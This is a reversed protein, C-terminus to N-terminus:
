FAKPHCWSMLSVLYEVLVALTVGVLPLSRDQHAQEPSHSGPHPLVLPGTSWQLKGFARVPIHPSSRSASCSHAAKRGFGSRVPIYEYRGQALGGPFPGSRVGVVSM